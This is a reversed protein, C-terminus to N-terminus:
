VRVVYHVTRVSVELARRGWLSLIVSGTTASGM